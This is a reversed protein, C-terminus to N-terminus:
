IYIKLFLHQTINNHKEKARAAQKQVQKKNKNRIRDNKYRYLM